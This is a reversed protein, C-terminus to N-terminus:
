PKIKILEFIDEVQEEIYNPEIIVTGLCSSLLSSPLLSIKRFMFCEKLDTFVCCFGVWDFYPGLIHFSLESLNNCINLLSM